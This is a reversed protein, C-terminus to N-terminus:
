RGCAPFSDSTRTQRPLTLSPIISPRCAPRRRTGATRCGAAAPRRPRRRAADDRQRPHVLRAGTGHEARPPSTSRPRGSRASGLLRHVGEGDGGGVAVVLDLQRGREGLQDVLIRRKPDLLVGVHVLRHQPALALHVQAHREVPQLVLVVDLDRQLLRPGGVLLRDAPGALAWPRCLFCLPPWPWNPSTFISMQGSPRPSPKENSFLIKPPETGRWYM